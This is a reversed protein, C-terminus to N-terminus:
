CGTIRSTDARLFVRISVGVTYGCCPLEPIACFKQARSSVHKEGGSNETKRQMKETIVNYGPSANYMPPKRLKCGRKIRKIKAHARETKSKLDQKAFISDRREGKNVVRDIAKKSDSRSTTPPPILGYIYVSAYNNM